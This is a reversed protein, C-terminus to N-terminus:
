QVDISHLIREYLAALVSTEGSFAAIDANLLEEKEIDEFLLEYGAENSLQILFCRIARGNGDRFPHLANLDGSLAALKQAFHEKNLGKLFNDQKLKDFIQQQMRAINEVYCFVSGGKAINVTRIKGAMTYIDSFLHSHIAQLHKFDFAGQIPDNALEALRMFVIDAEARKLLEPDKIGLKNEIVEDYGTFYDTM